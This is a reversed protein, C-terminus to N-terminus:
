VAVPTIGKESAALLLMAWVMGGRDEPPLFHELQANISDCALAFVVRDANVYVASRHRATDDFMEARLRDIVKPHIKSVDGGIMRQNAVIVGEDILRAAGEAGFTEIIEVRRRSLAMSAEMFLLTGNGDFIAGEDTVVRLNSLNYIGKAMQDSIWAAHDPFVEYPGHYDDSIDLWEQPPDNPNQALVRDLQAITGIARGTAQMHGFDHLRIGVHNYHNVPEGNTQDIMPAYLAPYISSRRDRLDPKYDPRQSQWTESLDFFNDSVTVFVKLALSENLSVRFNLRAEYHASVEDGAAHFGDPLFADRLRAQLVAPNLMTELTTKETM